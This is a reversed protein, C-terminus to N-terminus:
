IVSQKFSGVYMLEKLAKLAALRVRFKKSVLPLLLAQILMVAFNPLYDKYDTIFNAVVQCAYIQIARARDMLLVRLLGVLTSMHELVAELGCCEIVENVIQAYIMRIEEVDESYDNMYHPKQNNQPQMEPALHEMGTLNICNTREILKELVFSLYDAPKDVRAILLLVIRASHERVVDSKNDFSTLLIRLYNKFLVDCETTDLKQTSNKIIQFLQQITEKKKVQSGDKLLNFDHKITELLNQAM